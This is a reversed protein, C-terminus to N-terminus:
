IREIVTEIKSSRFTYTYGLKDTIRYIKADPFRKMHNILAEAEAGEFTYIKGSIM